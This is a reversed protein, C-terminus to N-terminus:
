YIMNDYVTNFQLDKYNFCTFYKGNSVWIQVMVNPVQIDSVVNTLRWSRSLAEFNSSLMACFLSHSTTPDMQLLPRRGAPPAM